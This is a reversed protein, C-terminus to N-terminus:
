QQDTDSADDLDLALQSLTQLFQHQSTLPQIREALEPSSEALGQLFQLKVLAANVAAIGKEFVARQQRTLVAM